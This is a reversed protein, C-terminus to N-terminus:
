LKIRMLGTDPDYTTFNRKKIANYMISGVGFGALSLLTKAPKPLESFSSAARALAYGATGALINDFAEPSNLIKFVNEKKIEPLGHDQEVLRRFSNPNELIDPGHMRVGFPSISSRHALPDYLAIDYSRQPALKFM